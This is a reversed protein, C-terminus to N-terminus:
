SEVIQEMLDTVAEAETSGHGVQGSDGEHTDKDIAQWDFRRDPIPPHVFTTQINM